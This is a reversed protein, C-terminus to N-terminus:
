HTSIAHSWALAFLRFYLLGDRAEENRRMEEPRVETDLWVKLAVADQVLNISASFALLPLSAGLLVNTNLRSTDTAKYCGQLCSGLTKLRNKM